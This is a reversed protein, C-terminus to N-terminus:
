RLTMRTLRHCVRRTGVTTHQRASCSRPRGSQAQPHGRRTATPVCLAATRGRRQVCTGRVAARTAGHESCRVRCVAVPIAVIYVPFRLTGGNNSPGGVSAHTSCVAPLDVVGVAGGVSQRAASRSPSVHLAALGGGSPPSTVGARDVFISRARGDGASSVVGVADREPGGVTVTAYLAGAAQLDVVVAAESSRASPAVHRAHRHPAIGDTAAGASIRPGSRGLSVVDSDTPANTSAAAATASSALRTRAALSEIRPRPLGRGHESAPSPSEVRPPPSAKRSACVPPPLCPFLSASVSAPASLASRERSHPAAVPDSV